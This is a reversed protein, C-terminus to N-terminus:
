SAIFGGSAALVYPFIQAAQTPYEYAHRHHGTLVHKISVARM